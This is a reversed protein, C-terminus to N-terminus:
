RLLNNNSGLIDHAGSTDLLVSERARAVRTLMPAVIGETHALYEQIDAASIALKYGHASGAVVVGKDRLFGVMGRVQRTSVEFGQSKLLEELRDAYISQSAGEEFLRAFLLVDLIYAAAREDPLPSADLNLRLRYARALATEGIVSDDPSSEEEDTPTNSVPPWAIAALEKKRLLERYRPSEACQRSPDFCWNLTGAILDALQVLRDSASDVHRSEYDFLLSPRMRSHMYQEFEVMTEPYGFNDFTINIGGGAYSDFPKQLLRKFFKQFSKRFRLGSKDDIAAKDVVLCAYQFAIDQIDELFLLRRAHNAGISSSKIEGGSSRRQAIGEIADRAPQVQSDDLLVAVCTFYADADSTGSEDVFVHLWPMGTYEVAAM